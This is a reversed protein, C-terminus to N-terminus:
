VALGFGFCEPGAEFRHIKADGVMQLIGLSLKGMYANPSQILAPDDTLILAPENIADGSYRVAMYFM